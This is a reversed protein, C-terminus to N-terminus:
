FLTTHLSFAPNRSYVTVTIREGSRTQWETVRPQSTNKVLIDEEILTMMADHFDRPPYQFVVHVSYQDRSPGEVCKWEVPRIGVPPSDLMRAVTMRELGDDEAVECFPQFLHAEVLMQVYELNFGREM